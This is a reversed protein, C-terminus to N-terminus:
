TVSTYRATTPGESEVKRLNRKGKADGGRSPEERRGPDGESERAGGGGAGGTKRSRRFDRDEDDVQVGYLAHVYM